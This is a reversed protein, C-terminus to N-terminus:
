IIYQWNNCHRPLTVFSVSILFHTYLTTQCTISRWPGKSDSFLILVSFWVIAPSVVSKTLECHMQDSDISHWQRNHLQLAWPWCAKVNEARQVTSRSPYDRWITCPCGVVKAVFLESVTDLVSEPFWTSTLDASERQVCDFLASPQMYTRSNHEALQCRLQSVLHDEPWSLQCWAWWFGIGVRLTFTLQDQHVLVSSRIAHCKTRWMHLSQTLASAAEKASCILPM